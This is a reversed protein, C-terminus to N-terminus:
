IFVCLLETKHPVNYSMSFTHWNFRILHNFITSFHCPIGYHSMKTWNSLNSPWPQLVNGVNAPRVNPLDPLVFGRFRCSRCLYECKTSVALMVSGVHRSLTGTRREGSASIKSVTGLWVVPPLSTGGHLHFLVKVCTHRHRRHQLQLLNKGHVLSTTPGHNTEREAWLCITCSQTM